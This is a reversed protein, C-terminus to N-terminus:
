RPTSGTAGRDSGAVADLLIEASRAAGSLDLRPRQPPPAALAFEAAAALRTPTLTAEDLCQALGRAALAEARATQETEDHAAFPVLIARVGAELVDLVTNYGAQSISLAAQGLIRAFDPRNLELVVNDPANARWGPLMHTLGPAVLIRWPWAPLGVRAAGLAAEVLPAGVAGGGASVVIERGDSTTGAEDDAMSAATAAHSDARLFGTYRVLPAIAQVAGFSDDLRVFDPDAHVLIRSYFREAVAAMAREKSRSKRVLVDRVSAAVVTTEPLTELVPLIEDTFRRRGLPFSETVLIDPRVRGVARAFGERRSPLVTEYDAGDDTVIATFRADAALVPELQVTDLGSLDLTAPPRAGFVVSM